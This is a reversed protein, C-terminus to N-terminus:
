VASVTPPATKEGTRESTRSRARHGPPEPTAAVSPRKAPTTKRRKTRRRSTRCASAAWDELLEIDDPSLYHATRDGHRERLRLFYALTRRAGSSLGANITLCDALLRDLDDPAPMPPRRAIDTNRKYAYNREAQFVVKSPLGFHLIFIKPKGCFVAFGHCSTKM